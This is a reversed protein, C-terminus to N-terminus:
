LYSLVDNWQTYINQGPALPIKRLVVLSLKHRKEQLILYNYLSVFDLSFKRKQLFFVTGLWVIMVSIEVRIRRCM